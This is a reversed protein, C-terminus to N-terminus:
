MCSLRHLTPPVCVLVVGFPAYVAPESVAAEAGHAAESAGQRAQPSATGKAARAIGARRGGSLLSEREGCTVAGLTTM